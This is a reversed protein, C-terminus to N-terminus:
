GGVLFIRETVPSYSKGPQERSIEHDNVARGSTHVLLM